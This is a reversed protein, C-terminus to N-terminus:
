NNTLQGSLKSLTGYFQQWLNNHLQKINRKQFMYLIITYLIPYLIEHVHKLLLLNIIYYHKLPVTHKITFM